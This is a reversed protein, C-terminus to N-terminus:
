ILYHALEIDNVLIEAEYPTLGHALLRELKQEPLEPLNKKIREIWAADMHLPPLDPELFYRYDAAEEKSRMAITKKDKTDWLRTEQRVKEGVALM